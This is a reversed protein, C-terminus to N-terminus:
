GKAKRITSLPMPWSKNKAASHKFGRRGARPKRGGSLKPSTKESRDSSGSGTLRNHLGEKTQTGDQCSEYESRAQKGQSILDMLKRKDGRCLYRKCPRPQSQDCTQRATELAVQWVGELEQAIEQVQGAFGHDKAAQLRETHMPNQASVSFATEQCGPLGDLISISSEVKRRLTYIQQGLDVHLKSQYM